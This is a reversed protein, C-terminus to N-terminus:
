DWKKLEDLKVAGNQSAFAIEQRTSQQQSVGSIRHDGTDYTTLKGDHELFCANNTRSSHTACAM